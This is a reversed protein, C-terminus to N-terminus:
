CRFFAAPRARPELADLAVSEGPAFFRRAIGRHDVDHRVHEVDVGVERGRVFAFLAETEAHSVNFRLDTAVSREDSRDRRGGAAGPTARQRAIPIAM